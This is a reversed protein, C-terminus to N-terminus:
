RRRRDAGAACSWCPTLGVIRRDVYKGATCICFLQTGIAALGPASPAMAGPIQVAPWNQTAPEYITLWL